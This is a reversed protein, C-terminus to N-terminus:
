NIESNSDPNWIVLSIIFHVHSTRVLYKHIYKHENLIYHIEM